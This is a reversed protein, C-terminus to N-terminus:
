ATVLLAKGAVRRDELAAHADAARGLPDVRGIVARLRGAAAEALVAVARERAGALFTGLQAMGVAEVGEPASAPDTPAGAAMGYGSFRGGRRLLGLAATGAAGGVGDFVVDVPPVDRTWGEEGPDVVHDAGLDRVVARKAPGHAAGVVTVGRTRLLQVLLSGLGGAAPLVLATAGAGVPTAGLVALATRGDHLLAAADADPVGDPIPVLGDVPATVVEAYAGRDVDALVRRGIWAPDVGPGTATVVGAAGKGPRWPLDVGFREGATGRRIITDLWLVGAVTVAVLAEGADAVPEPAAVARLVEPGGFRTVEITDM